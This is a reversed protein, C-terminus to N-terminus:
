PYDMVGNTCNDEMAAWMLDAIANSCNTAPHIGDPGIPNILRGCAERTDIFTCDMVQQEECAAKAMPYAQDLVDNLAANSIHPYFFYITEIVGADAAEQM